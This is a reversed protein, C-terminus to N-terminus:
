GRELYDEWLSVNVTDLPAAQEGWLERALFRVTYVHKPRVDLSFGEPDTDPFNFPGEDRVITGRKGRTYRPLRTHGVPNMNRARVSQGVRFRPASGAIPQPTRPRAIVDVMAPTILPTAKPGPAARGSELEAPTVIKSFLLHNILVTFTRAYYSLRLYQAPPLIEHEYRFLRRRSPPVLPLAALAWVRGEWPEHFTPENKEYVIPGMNQMGGMDHIGNM